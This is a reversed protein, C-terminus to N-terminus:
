GYCHSHVLSSLLTFTIRIRALFAHVPLPTTAGSMRGLKPVLHLQTILKVGCDNSRQSMVGTGVSYSTPPGLTPRSKESFIIVVQWVLIQLGSRGTRLRTAIGVGAVSYKFYDHERFFLIFTLLGGKRRCPNNFQIIRIVIDKM